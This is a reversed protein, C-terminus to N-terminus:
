AAIKAHQVSAVHVKANAAHSPIHIQDGVAAM